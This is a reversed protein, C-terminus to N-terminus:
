KFSAKICEWGLKFLEKRSMQFKIQNEPNLDDVDFTERRLWYRIRPGEPNWHLTIPNIQSM